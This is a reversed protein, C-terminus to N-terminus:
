LQEILHEVCKKCLCGEYNMEIYEKINEPIEIDFCWCHVSYTCTFYEGCRPCEIAQYKVHNKNM